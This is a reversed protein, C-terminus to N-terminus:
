RFIARFRLLATANPALPKRCTWRLHTFAGTKKEPGFTAGEDASLGVDCAPGTASGRVYDVGQPMRKTVVVDGVPDKGPNRVRITYYVEEGAALRRAEVFAKVERGDPGASVELKQAVLRAELPGTGVAEVATSPDGPPEPAAQGPGVALTGTATLVFVAALSSFRPKRPPQPM